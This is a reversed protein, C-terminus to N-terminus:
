SPIHRLIDVIEQGFEERQWKKMAHIRNLSRLNLPRRSALTTILAKTCLLSPDIELKKARKDRWSKLAKVRKAVAASVAPAIERPYVPLAKAPIKMARKIAVVIQEGYMSIQQPSLAKTKELTELNLPKIEALKMLSKNSIIRFLPKDKRQAVQRRYQLLAELVSLSRPVLQGAGKFNLFLPKVDGTPPRVQSLYECEEYVWVLRGKAKLEGQLSQALPLLHQVDAAAYATMEPSLPRSSWDKRQYKKDLVVGYRKKLVAELGTQTCGLFRCALQTDFLNNITIQFDRFLSRVDYDAGHFVKQIGSCRFVPKLASLDRIQLPDIVANFDRAALQVLCVKEKFHYMSDAELDVAVAKEKELAKALNQLGARTDIIEYRFTNKTNM